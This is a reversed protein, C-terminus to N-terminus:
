KFFGMREAEQIKKKFSARDEPKMTAVMREREAPGLAEFQWVRADTVESVKGLKDLYEKRDGKLYTPLFHKYVDKSMRVQGIIQDAADAIAHENMTPHPSALQNVVRAADTAAPSNKALQAMNKEMLDTATKLDAAGPSGLKELIGNIFSLREQETGVIARQAFTKINQAIGELLASSAVNNAAETFHSQMRAVQGEATNTEGLAPGSQVFKGGSKVQDAYANIAEAREKSDKIASISNAIIKPDGQFNSTVPQAGLYGPAQTDPNFIPTSPPLQQQQPTGAIPQGIPTAGFPNTGIVATQQQNTVPVGGERVNASQGTSGVGAQISNLLIQRVSKPETIAKSMLIASQAEAIGPPVGSDIMMQRAAAIKPILGESNGNVVDPDSVLQQSIDRAKQAYEGTLKFKDLNTKIEAQRAQQVATQSQARGQEIGPQLLAREKELAVGGRQLAQMGQATNVMSGLTQFADPVKPQAIFSYDAM